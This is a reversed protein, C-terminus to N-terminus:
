RLMEKIKTILEKKEFRRAKLVAMMGTLHNVDSELEPILKELRQRERVEM